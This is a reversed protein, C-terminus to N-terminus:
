DTNSFFSDFYIKTEESLKRVFGSLSATTLEGKANMKLPKQKSRIPGFLLEPVRELPILRPEITSGHSGSAATESCCNFPEQHCLHPVPQQESLYVVRTIEPPLDEECDIYGDKATYFTRDANHPPIREIATDRPILAARRDGTERLLYDFAIETKEVPLRAMICLTKNKLTVPYIVDGPKVTKISPMKTHVSGLVVRIPGTDKAKELKRIQESPWYVIYGSM